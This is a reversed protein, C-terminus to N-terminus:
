CNSSIKSFPLTNVYKFDVYVCLFLHYEMCSLHVFFTSVKEVDVYKFAYMLQIYWNFSVFTLEMLTFGHFCELCIHFIMFQALSVFAIDLIIHKIILM